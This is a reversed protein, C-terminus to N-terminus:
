GFLDEKFLRRGGLCIRFGWLAIALFSLFVLLSNMAYWNSFDPSYVLSLLTDATLVGVALVIVGFRVVSISAIGYVLVLVILSLALHTSGLSRPVAFLVVFLAAALWRNRVLVRLLVLIMSFLLTTRIAAIVDALWIAM